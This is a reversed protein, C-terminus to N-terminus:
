WMNKDIEEWGDRISPSKKKENAKNIAQYAEIPSTHSWISLEYAWYFSKFGLM